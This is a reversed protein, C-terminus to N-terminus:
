NPGVRRPGSLTTLTSSPRFLRQAQTPTKRRYASFAARTLEYPTALSPLQDWALDPIPQAKSDHRGDAVDVLYDFPLYATEDGQKVVAQLLASKSGVPESAWELHKTLDSKPGTLRAIHLYIPYLSTLESRRIPRGIDMRVWDIAAQVLAWADPEAGQRANRYKKVLKDAAVLQEGIGAEFQEEPYKARAVSLESPKLDSDLRVEFAFDLVKRVSRGIGSESNRARDYAAATITGLVIVQDALQGLVGLDALDGESMNDLWLLAPKPWNLPPDLNFIKEVAAARKPVVVVPDYLVGDRTLRRAAEYATRSKGAKSDGVLLVFPWERLARDLQEDIERPVYPDSGRHRRDGYRSKSVSLDYPSLTSLRPLQGDPGPSLDDDFLGRIKETWEVDGQQRKSRLTVFVTALILLATLPYLVFRLSAPAHKFQDLVELGLTALATL